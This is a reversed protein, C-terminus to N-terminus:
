ESSKLVYGAKRRADDRRAVQTGENNIKQAPVFGGIKDSFSGHTPLVRIGILKTQTKPPVSVVTKSASPAASIAAAIPTTTPGVAAIVPTVISTRMPSKQLPTGIPRSVPHAMTARLNSILIPRPMKHISSQARRTQIGM